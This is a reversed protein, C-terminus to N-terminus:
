AYSQGPKAKEIIEAMQADLDQLLEEYEILEKGLKKIEKDAEEVSDTGSVDKLQKLVQEKQGEQNAQDRILQEIKKIKLKISDVIDSM